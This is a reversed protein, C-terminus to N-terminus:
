RAAGGEESVALNWVASNKGYNNDIVCVMTGAIAALLSAHLRDTVVRESSRMLRIIDLTVQDCGPGYESIGYHSMLDFARAGPTKQASEGDSRLITIMRTSDPVIRSLARKWRLGKKLWRPDLALGLWYRWGKSRQELEAIDLDFVLDKALLATARPAHCQVHDFSALDRCMLTFRHDLRALTEEHGRITHPLLLCQAINRDVCANLVRAITDYYQIFNGGGGVIVHMGEKLCEARASILPLSLRRFLQATASAIAADGANGPNCVFVPSQYKLSWEWLVNLTNELKM